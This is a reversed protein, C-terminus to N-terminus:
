RLKKRRVILKLQYNIGLYQSYLAYNYFENSITGM